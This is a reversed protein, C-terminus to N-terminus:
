EISWINREILKAENTKKRKADKRREGWNQSVLNKKKKLFLVAVWEFLYCTVCLWLSVVSLWILNGLHGLSKKKILILELIKGEEQSVFYLISYLQGTGFGLFLLLKFIFLLLPLDLSFNQGFWVFSFAGNRPFLPIM